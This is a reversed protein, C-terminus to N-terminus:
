LQNRDVASQSFTLVNVARQAPKADQARIRPLHQWLHHRVAEPWFGVVDHGLNLHTRRMELAGIHQHDTQIFVIESNRPLCEMSPM